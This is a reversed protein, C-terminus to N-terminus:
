IALARGGLFRTAAPRPLELHHPRAERWGPGKSVTKTPEAQSNKRGSVQPCRGTEFLFCGKLAKVFLRPCSTTPRPQSFPPLCPLYTLPHPPLSAADFSFLSPQALQLCPWSQRPPKLVVGCPVPPPTSRPFRLGTERVREEAARAAAQPHVPTPHPQPALNTGM